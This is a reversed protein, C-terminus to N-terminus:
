KIGKVQDVARQQVLKIIGLVLLSLGLVVQIAGLKRLNSMIILGGFVVLLGMFVYRM